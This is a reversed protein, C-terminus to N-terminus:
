RITFPGNTASQVRWQGDGLYELTVRDNQKGTISGATGFSTRNGQSTYLQGQGAAGAGLFNGAAVAMKAGDASLAVARWNPETTGAPTIAAFSAGGDTSLLVRGAEAGTTSATAAIISGDASMALATYDITLANGRIWTAGGNHSVYIGTGPAGGFANGVVAITQGDRSVKVRYWNEFRNAPATATGVNVTVEAFTAGADTSRFMRADQSVAVIVQGDFSSDISRWAFDQTTGPMTAATWTAGADNSYVLRGNQIVAAIRQGDESITVSEFAIGPVTTDANFVLPSSTVQNWTVGMDTSMYMGTGQYQVAVMREGNASMDSSIWIGSRSNGNTWTQGGDVSTNLRGGAAEGALLIEGTRNATVWHWVKPAMRPTYLEGVAVNGPLGATLVSQGANQAIKFTNNSVGTIAVTDTAAAVAPLTVTIEGAVPANIEYVSNAALQTDAIVQIASPAPATTPAPAPATTPAPAPATTPAPAPAGPQDPPPVVPGDGGGGGCAALWLAALAATVHVRSKSGIM